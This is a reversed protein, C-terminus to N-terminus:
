GNEGGVSAVIEVVEKVVRPDAQGTFKKNFAGIAQGVLRQMNSFDMGKLLVKVEETIKERTMQAPLYKELLSLELTEKEVLDQRDAKAFEEISQKRQKVLGVIVKAVDVDSLEVGHLKEAETIKTKLIGLASKTVIDKSKMALLFDAQIKTKLTM